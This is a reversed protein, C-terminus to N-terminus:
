ALADATIPADKPLAHALRRGLVADYERADIGPTAVRKATLLESTLISGEPLDHLAVLTRRYKARLPVEAAVPRKEASGLALDLMRVDRVLATLEAFTMSFHHDPGPLARDLTVHKEIMCAGLAVSALAFTSGISHDSYGIPYPFVDRLTAIARLNADEPQLPYQSTCHLIALSQGGADVVMRVAWVVEDLTSMGTSMIIPLGSAAAARLLPVNTLNGSSIKIAPFGLRQAARVDAPMAFSAFITIGAAAASRAVREWADSSLAVRRFLEYSETGRAYDREADVLQFKVADAGADAACRVMEEALEVQGNHNIGIEAIIYTPHADDISRGNIAITRTM